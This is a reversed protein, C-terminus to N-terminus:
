LPVNRGLLSWKSICLIQGLSFPTRMCYSGLHSLGLDQCSGCIPGPLTNKSFSKAPSLPCAADVRDVCAGALASIADNRGVLRSTGVKYLLYVRAVRPAVGM